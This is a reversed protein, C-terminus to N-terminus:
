RMGGWSGVRRVGWNQQHVHRVKHAPLNLDKQHRITAWIDAASMPLSDAPLREPNRRVLSEGADEGDEPPSFRRRLVITDAVFDDHREEYHPLAAFQVEFFDNISSGVYQQPKSIADWMKNIDEMLTEALQPRPYPCLM